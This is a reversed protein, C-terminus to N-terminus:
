PWIMIFCRQKGNHNINNDRVFQLIKGLLLAIEYFCDRFIQVEIEFESM